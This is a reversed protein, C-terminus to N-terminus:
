KKGIVRNKWHALGSVAHCFCGFDCLDQENKLQEGYGIPYLRLLNLLFSASKMVWPETLMNDPLARALFEFTHGTVHVEYATLTSTSSSQGEYAPPRLAGNEWQSDHIKKIADDVQEQVLDLIQGYKNHDVGNTCELVRALAFLYHTGFCITNPPVSLMHKLLESLNQTQGYKNKWESVFGSYYAHASITWPLERHVTAEERSFDIMDSLTHITDGVYLHTSPSICLVSFIHLYQDWHDELLYPDDIKPRAYPKGRRIQFPTM